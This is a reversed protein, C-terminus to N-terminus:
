ARHVEIDFDIVVGARPVPGDSIRRFSVRSAGGDLQKREDQCYVYEKPDHRQLEEILDEVRMPKNANM